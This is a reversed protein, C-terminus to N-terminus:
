QTATIPRNLVLMLESGFERLTQIAFPCFKDSLELHNHEGISALDGHGAVFERTANSARNDGLFGRMHVILNRIAALGQITTWSSATNPFPVDCVKTMYQRSRQIGRGALDSPAIKLSMEMQLSRCLMELEAELMSYLAVFLSTRLVQPFTDKAALWVEGNWQLFESKAAENMGAMERALSEETEVLFKKNAEEMVECYLGLEALEEDLFLLSIHM